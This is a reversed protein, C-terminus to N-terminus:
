PSKGINKPSDGNNQLPNAMTKQPITKVLNAMEISPYSMTELPNAMKELPNAM